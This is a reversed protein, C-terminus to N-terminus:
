PTLVDTLPVVAHVEGAEDTIEYRGNQSQGAKIANGLTKRAAALAKVHAAELDAVEIGEVDKALYDGDRFNLFFRPM